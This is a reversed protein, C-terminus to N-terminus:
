CTREGRQRPVGSGVQRVSHIARLSLRYARSRGALRRRAGGGSRGPAAGATRGRRRIGSMAAPEGCRTASGSPRGAVVVGAFDRGPVRPLVTGDMLGGVNKVDSPNVSAAKVEVVAQGSEAVPDALDAVHLVDVGGFHDFRLARM